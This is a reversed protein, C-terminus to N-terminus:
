DYVENFNNMKKDIEMHIQRVRNMSIDYDNAISKFTRRGYERDAWILLNRYTISKRDLNPMARCPSYKEIFLHVLERAEVEFM